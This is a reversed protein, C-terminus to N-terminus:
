KARRIWHPGLPITSQDIPDKNVYVLKPKEAFVAQMFTNQMNVAVAVQLDMVAKAVAASQLFFATTAEAYLYYM